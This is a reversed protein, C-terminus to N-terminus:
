SQLERIPSEVILAFNGLYQNSYFDSRVVFDFPNFYTACVVLSEHKFTIKLEMQKKTVFICRAVLSGM